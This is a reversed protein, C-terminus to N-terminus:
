SGDTNLTGGVTATSDLHDVSVAFTVRDSATPGVLGGGEQSFTISVRVHVDRSIPGDGPSTDEFEAPDLYQLLPIEGPAFSHSGSEVPPDISELTTSVSSLSNEGVAAEIQSRIGIVAAPFHNWQVDLQPAITLTEITGDNSEITVDDATLGSVQATARRSTLGVTGIGVGGIAALAVAGGLLTRRGVGGEDSEEDSM